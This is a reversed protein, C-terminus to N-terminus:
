FEGPHALRHYGRTSPTGPVRTARATTEPFVTTSTSHARSHRHRRVVCTWGIAGPAFGRGQGPASSPGHDGSSELARDPRVSRSQPPPLPGSPARACPRRTVAARRAGCSTCLTPPSQCWGATGSRAERSWSEDKSRRGRTQKGSISRSRSRSRSRMSRSTKSMRTSRSSTPGTEVRVAGRGEIPSPSLALPNFGFVVVNM